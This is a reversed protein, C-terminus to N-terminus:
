YKAFKRLLATGEAEPHEIVEGQHHPCQLEEFRWSNTEKYCLTLEWFFQHKNFANTFVGFRTRNQKTQKEAHWRYKNIVNLWFRADTYFFHTWTPAPLSYNICWWIRNHTQPLVCHRAANNHSWIAEIEGWPSEASVIRFAQWGSQFFYFQDLRWKVHLNCYAPGFHLITLSIPHQSTDQIESLHWLLRRVLASERTFSVVCSLWNVSSLLPLTIEQSSIARTANSIRNPHVTHGLPLYVTLGGHNFLNWTVVSTPEEKQVM